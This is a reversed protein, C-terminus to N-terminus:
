ATNKNPTVLSIASRWKKYEASLLTDCTAQFDIGKRFSIETVRDNSKLEVSINHPRKVVAIDISQLSLELPIIPDLERSALPNGFKDIVEVTEAKDRYTCIIQKAPISKDLIVVTSSYLEGGNGYSSVALFPNIGLFSISASIRKLEGHQELTVRKIEDDTKSEVFTAIDPIDINPHKIETTIRRIGDLLHQELRRHTQNQPDVEWSTLVSTDSDFSTNTLKTNQINYKHGDMEQM